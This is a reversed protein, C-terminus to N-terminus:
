CGAIDDLTGGKIGELGAIALMKNMTGDLDPFCLEFLQLLDIRVLCARSCGELESVDYLARGSRIIGTDM